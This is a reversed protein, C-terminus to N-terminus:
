QETMEFLLCPKPLLLFALCGAAIRFIMGTQTRPMPFAMARLGETSPLNACVEEGRGGGWSPWIWPINMHPAASPTDYGM